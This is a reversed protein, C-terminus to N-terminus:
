DSCKGNFVVRQRRDKLFNEIWKLIEGEFGYTQIKLLHRQHPLSDFAKKIDLYVTDFQESNDYFKTWDDLVDLLQLICSRKTRFGYQCDSFLNNQTMHDM